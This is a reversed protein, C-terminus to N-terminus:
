AAAEDLQNIKGMVLERLEQEPLADIITVGGVQVIYRALERVKERVYFAKDEKERDLLVKLVAQTLQNNQRLCEGSPEPDCGTKEAPRCNARLPGRACPRILLVRVVM